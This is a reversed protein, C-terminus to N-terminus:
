MNVDRSKQMKKEFFSERKLDDMERRKNGREIDEDSLSYRIEQCLCFHYYCGKAEFVKKCHDCYRDVNFSGYKKKIELRTSVRLKANQDQKKTFLCPM